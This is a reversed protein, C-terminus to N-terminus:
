AFMTKKAFMPKIGGEHDCRAIGPSKKKESLHGGLGEKKVFEGAGLPARKKLEKEGRMKKAKSNKRMKRGKKKTMRGETFYQKSKVGKGGVLGGGGGLIKL